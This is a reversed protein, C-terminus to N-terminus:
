RRDPREDPDTVSVSPHRVLREFVTVFLLLASPQELESAGEPMTLLPALFAVRHPLEPSIM